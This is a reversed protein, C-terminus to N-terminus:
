ILRGHTVVLIKYYCHLRVFFTIVDALLCENLHVIIRNDSM